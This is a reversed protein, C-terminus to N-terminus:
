EEESRTIRDNMEPNVKRVEEETLLRFSLLEVDDAKANHNKIAVAGYVASVAISQANYHVSNTYYNMEISSRGETVLYCFLYWSENASSTRAQKSSHKKM